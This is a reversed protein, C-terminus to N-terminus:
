EVVEGTYVGWLHKREIWGKTGDIYLRCWAADCTLLTGIVGADAIIVVPSNSTNDDYLKQQKGIVMATRNGYLLSVLMWGEIDEHDRVKRWPGHEDIIEFPLGQRNYVWDVPYQRGPGTRLYAKKASLAVFRPIPNGSPGITVPGQPQEFAAVKGAFLSIITFFIVIYKIM